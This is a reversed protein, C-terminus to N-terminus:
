TERMATHWNTTQDRVGLSHRSKGALSNGMQTWNGGNDTTELRWLVTFDM